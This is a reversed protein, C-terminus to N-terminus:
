LAHRDSRAWWAGKSSINGSTRRTECAGCQPKTPRTESSHTVLQRACSRWAGNEPARPSHPLASYPLELEAFPPFSYPIPFLAGRRVNLMVGASTRLGCRGHRAAPATHLGQSLTPTVVTTLSSNTLRLRIVFENARHKTMCTYLALRVLM